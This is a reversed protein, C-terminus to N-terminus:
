ERCQRCTTKMGRRQRRVIAPSHGPPPGAIWEAAAGAKTTVIQGIQREACSVCGGCFDLAIKWADGVAVSLAARVFIADQMLQQEIQDSM